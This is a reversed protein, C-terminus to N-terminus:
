KGLLKTKVEEKRASAEEASDFVEKIKAGNVMEYQVTKSNEETDTEYIIDNLWITNLLKGDKLEMFM